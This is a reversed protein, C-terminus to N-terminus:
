HVNPSEKREQTAETPSNSSDTNAESDPPVLGNGRVQNRLLSLRRHLEQGYIGSEHLMDNMAELEMRYEAAGILRCLGAYRDILESNTLSQVFQQKDELAQQKFELEPNSM